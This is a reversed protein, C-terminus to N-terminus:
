AYQKEEFFRQWKERNFNTKCHCGMCLSILNSESCNNKDYDIHHVHLLGTGEQNCIVCKNDDRERITRKLSNNFSIPYPEFSKGGKWLSSGEGSMRQRYWEEKWLMLSRQRIKEKAERGHKHLGTKGRNYLFSNKKLESMKKKYEDSQKRGKLAISNALGIKRKWEESLKRPFAHCKCMKNKHVFSLKNRIEISTKSNKKM